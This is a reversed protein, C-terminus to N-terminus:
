KNPPAFRGIGSRTPSPRPPRQRRRSAPWDRVVTEFTVFIAGAAGILMVVCFGAFPLLPYLVAGSGFLIAWCYIVVVVRRHSHGIRLLRHHLHMSDAQFPSQGKLTRRLVALVLDAIPICLIVLVAIVPGIMAKTDAPGYMGQNIKGTLSTATAALLFGLLMAGSDGMFIRSPHFNHPLFGACIGVLAAAIIAPPYGAVAGGQDHLAVLALCFLSFGAIGAIGAALGDLGDVFNIANILTVTVLATVLMSSARDLIILSQGPWYSITWSLGMSSMVLAGLFQGLLKTVADLDWLDDIVGVLVIIFGGIVVADMEPTIPQFARTLAPLQHAVYVSVLFGSFMAVGGLRPMPTHHVDRQRPNDIWGSRIIAARILGTTLYTTIVGVLLVIGLERLPVGVAGTGM